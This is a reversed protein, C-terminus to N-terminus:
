LGGDRTPLCWVDILDELVISTKLEEYRTTLLVDFSFSFIKGGM